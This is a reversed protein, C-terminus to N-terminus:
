GSPSPGTSQDVSLARSGLVDGDLFASLLYRGPRPFLANQIHFSLEVVDEATKSQVKGAIPVLVQNTEPHSLNLALDHEGPANTFALYISWPPFVVPFSQAVFRTFTGIIGKKGNDETIVRDAFLLALLVPESM